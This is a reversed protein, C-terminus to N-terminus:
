RIISKALNFRNILFFVSLMIILFDIINQIFLGYNIISNKYTITLASFDLGGIVIGIIEYSSTNAYEGRIKILLKEIDGAIIKIDSENLMEKSSNTANLISTVIKQLNFEDLRGDKKIVMM